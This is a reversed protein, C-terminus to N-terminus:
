PHWNDKEIFINLWWVVKITLNQNCNYRRNLCTYQITENDNAHDISYVPPFIM